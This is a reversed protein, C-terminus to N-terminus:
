QSNAGEVRAMDPYLKAMLDSAAKPTRPGLGLTLVGDVPIIHDNKFAPSSSLGNLRRVDKLTEEITRSRAMVVIADPALSVLQEDGVPKFGVIESAANEAGALKLVVDASTDKGGVTARGGEVALVFLVRIPKKIKQRERALAAFGDSVKSALKDAKEVVGVISGISRIKAVIADASPQNDVERYEISSAKLAAIVEPPGASESAIITTGGTALVGEASLARLYGVNKKDILAQPPHQSTSDVAVISDEAGLAYLIETVDSGLAVIKKEAAVAPGSLAVSIFLISIFRRLAPKPRLPLLKAAFIKMANRAM